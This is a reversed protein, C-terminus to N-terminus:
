PKQQQKVMEVLEPKLVIRAVNGDQNLQMREIYPIGDRDGTRRNELWIVKQHLNMLVADFIRQKDEVITNSIGCLQAFRDLTLVVPLGKENNQITESLLWGLIITEKLSFCPSRECIDLSQKLTPADLTVNKDNM